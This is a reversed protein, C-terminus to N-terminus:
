VKCVRGHQLPILFVVIYGIGVVVLAVPDNWIGTITARGLLSRGSKYTDDVYTFSRGTLMQVNNSWSWPSAQHARVM